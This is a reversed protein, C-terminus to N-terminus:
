GEIGVQLDVDLVVLVLLRAASDYDGGLVEVGEAGLAAYSCGDIGLERVLKGGVDAPLLGVLGAGGDLVLIIGGYGILLLRM